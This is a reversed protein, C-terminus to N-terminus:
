VAENDEHGDESKKEDDHADEKDHEHGDESKDEDGHTDEEKDNPNDNIECETTTPLAIEPDTGHIHAISFAQDVNDAVDPSREVDIIINSGKSLDIKTFGDLIKAVDLKLHVKPSTNDSVLIEGDNPFFLEINKSNEIRGNENPESHQVANALPIKNSHVNSHSNEEGEAPPTYNGNHIKFPIQEAGFNGEFTLFRYGLTWGWDLGFKRAALLMDGQSETGQEFVEEKVGYRFAISNYTGNPVNNLYKYKTAECDQAVIHFSEQTTANFDPTGNNGKLTIDTIIYRLTTVKVAGNVETQYTKGLEFTANDFVNEFEIYADVKNEPNVIYSNNNDDDCSLTIAAICLVATIKLFNM